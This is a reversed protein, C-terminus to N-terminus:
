LNDSKLLSRCHPNFSRSSPARILRIMSGCHCSCSSCCNGSGGSYQTIREFTTHFNLWLHAGECINEVHVLIMAEREARFLRPPGKKWLKALVKLIDVYDITNIINICKRRM